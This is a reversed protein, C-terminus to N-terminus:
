NLLYNTLATQSDLLLREVFDRAQAMSDMPLAIGNM